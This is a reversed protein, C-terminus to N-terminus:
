SFLEFFYFKERIVNEDCSNKRLSGEISYGVGKGIKLVIKGNQYYPTISSDFRFDSLHLKILDQYYRENYGFCIEEYTDILKEKISYVKLKDSTQYSNAYIRYSYAFVIGDNSKLTNSFLTLFTAGLLTLHLKM